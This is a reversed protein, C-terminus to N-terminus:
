PRDGADLELSRHRQIALTEEEGDALVRGVVKALLKATIAVLHTTEDDIVSVVRRYIVDERGTIDRGPRLERDHRRRSTRDGGDGNM